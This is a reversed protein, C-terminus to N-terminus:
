FGTPSFHMFDKQKGSIEGGWKFGIKKFSVVTLSDQTLSGTTKPSWRGGHSLKCHPGVIGPTECNVYLGNQERNIDFAIGFSHRSFRTRLGNEDTGGATMGPRYGRLTFIPEGQEVLHVLTNQVRKAIVHCLTLEVKKGLSNVISITVQDEECVTCPLVEATESPTVDSYKKQVRHSNVAMRNKTDWQYSNYSCSDQATSGHSYCCCIIIFLYTAKMFVGDYLHPDFFHANRSPCQIAKM